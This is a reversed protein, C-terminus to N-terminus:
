LLFNYLTKSWDSEILVVTLWSFQQLSNTCSFLCLLLYTEGESMAQERKDQSSYPAAPQTESLVMSSLISELGLPTTHAEVDFNYKSDASGPFSRCSLLETYWDRSVDHKIAANM